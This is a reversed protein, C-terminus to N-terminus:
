LRYRIRALVVAAGGFIVVVSPIGLMLGFAALLVSLGIATGLLLAGRARRPPQPDKFQRVWTPDEHEFQHELDSLLHRERDNLM